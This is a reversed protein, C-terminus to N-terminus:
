LQIEMAVSRVRGALDKRLRPAGRQAEAVASRLLGAVAEHQGAGVEFVVWGAEIVRALGPIIRRYIELGDKGGDLAGRPDHSRVEPELAAIDASAIYPPNCVVLDFPGSIGELGDHCAFRARSAVGHRAANGAAAELAALSVDSGVGAAHQLEALLTVLLCGSGTGIDLIRLPKERWDQETAIALAEEIITESDPRPDLTAPTVAFTRGYFEREGLIRSVPERRCRRAIAEALRARQADSIPTEPRLLMDASQLGTIAAVLRRADLPATEIGADRLAVTAQRVVADLREDQERAPDRELAPM